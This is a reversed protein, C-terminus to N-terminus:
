PRSNPASWRRMQALFSDTRGERLRCDIVTGNADLIPELEPMIFASFDHMGAAKARQVVEDRLGLDFFLGYSEFLTRAAKYDGEAKIRMVERLLEAIAVRLKPLDTVTLYRKGAHTELAVASCKVGYQVIAHTARMHDDEIREGQVRRLNTLDHRVYGRLAAEACTDDCDLGAERAIAQLKPDWILHLAVLEARTEELANAYEKLYLAPDRDGLAESLKGSGHGVIEHLAVLVNSIVPGWRKAPAREAEPAFETIGAESAGLDSNRIVNTLLFSKSGHKERIQDKNPLNIGAPVSPGSGGVGLLVQIAKAVPVQVGQKKYAAEWPMHDEFHQAAAAIGRMLRTARADVISIVGEWEGKVGRADKYTEIFGLILDVTPDDKLWAINSLDFSELSGTEFHDILHRLTEQQAAGAHAMAARLHRCVNALETAYRGPPAPRQDDTAPRGARWVDERLRGDAGKVVTSNLPYREEFGDLEALRVGEYFTNASATLLDQGAPPSKATLMPEFDRDFLLAEIEESHRHDLSAGAREAEKLAVRWQERTLPMVLKRKTREHYPGNSILFLKTYRELKHRLDAPLTQTHDLVGLLLTRLQLAHRHNQALTIDRGALAARTLHWAVLREERTLEAFGDVTLRLLAIGDVREAIVENPSM